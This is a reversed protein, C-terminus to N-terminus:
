KLNLFKHMQPVLRVNPYIKYFKEFIEELSSGELELPMKPQLVIPLKYKQALLSVSSIEGETINKDFVIKVFCKVHERDTAQELFKVVDAFDAVEDTASKLKIDASIIDVYDAIKELEQSLTGNTELYIKGLKSGYKEFFSALFDGWLLPEGGTLALVAPKLPSIADYLEDITYELAGVQSYDTDCYACALNCGCFRVFLHKEGVHPGEGQIGYFIEKIQAKNLM